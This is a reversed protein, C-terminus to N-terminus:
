QDMEPQGDATESRPFRKKSTERPAIPLPDGPKWSNPGPVWVDPASGTEAMKGIMKKVFEPPNDILDSMRKKQESTLVDSMKSKLRNAMEVTSEMVNRMERQIEPNSEQIKRVMEETIRKREEPDTINDLSKGLENRVLTQMKWQTEAMKDINKTFEPELEKKIGDLRQKQTSTLDLADFLNATLMPNESMASVQFEKVKQLQGPALNESIVSQLKGIATEHVTMELNTQLEFFRQQIEPTANPAFPGGQTEAMFRELEARIPQVAPENPMNDGLSQMTSQIRQVQERSIGIGERIEDKQILELTILNSGNGSWLSNMTQKMVNFQMQQAEPSNMVAERRAVDQPSQSFLWPTLGTLFIATLGCLDLPKTKM